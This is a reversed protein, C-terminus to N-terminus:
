AQSICLISPVCMLPHRHQWCPWPALLLLFDVTVPTHTKALLYGLDKGDGSQLIEKGEQSLTFTPVHGSLLINLFRSLHFVSFFREAPVERHRFLCLSLFKPDLGGPAPTLRLDGCLPAPFLPFWRGALWLVKFELLLLITGLTQAAGTQRHVNEQHNSCPKLAPHVGPQISSQGHCQYKANRFSPRSERQGGASGRSRAM